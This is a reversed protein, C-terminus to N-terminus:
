TSNYIKGRTLIKFFLLLYNSGMNRAVNQGSEGRLRATWNKNLKFYTKKRLLVMIGSLNGWCHSGNQHHRLEM